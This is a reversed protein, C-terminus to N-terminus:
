EVAGVAAKYEKFQDPHKGLADALQSCLVRYYETAAIEQGPPPNFISRKGEIAFEWDITKSVAINRDPEHAIEHYYKLLTSKGFGGRGYLLVVLGQIKHNPSPAATAQTDATSSLSNMLRKWKELYLQFLELQQERAIFISSLDFETYPSTM